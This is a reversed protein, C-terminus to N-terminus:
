ENRGILDATGAGLVALISIAAVSNYVHMFSTNLDVFGYLLLVIFVTLISSFFIVVARIPLFEFIFKDNVKRFGSFYLFMLIIIFASILLLTSRMFSFNESLHTGEVFAFHGVIGFFAGIIGKTIDRYTIRKLPSEKLNEKISHELNEIKKLELLEEKEEDEIKKDELLEKKEFDTFKKEEEFIKDEEKKLVDEKDMLSKQNKEIVALRRIILDLKKEHPLVAPMSKALKAISKVLVKRKKKRM